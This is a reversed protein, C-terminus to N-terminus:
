KAKKTAPRGVRPRSKAKALDAPSILYDRGLRQAPITGARCLAAVQHRTLGLMSAADITTLLKM